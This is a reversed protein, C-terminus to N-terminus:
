SSQGIFSADASVSETITSRSIGYYNTSFSGVLLYAIGCGALADAARVMLSAELTM